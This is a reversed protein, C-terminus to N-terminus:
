FYRANLLYSFAHRVLESHGGLAKHIVHKRHFTKYGKSQDPISGPPPLPLANLLSVYVVPPDSTVREQGAESSQSPEAASHEVRLQNDEGTDDESTNEDM